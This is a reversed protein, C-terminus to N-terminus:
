IIVNEVANTAERNCKVMDLTPFFLNIRRNKLRRTIRRIDLTKMINKLQVFNEEFDQNYPNLVLMKMNDSLLLEVVEFGYASFNGYRFVDERHMMERLTKKNDGVEVRPPVINLFPKMWVAEIYEVHVLTVFSTSKSFKPATLSVLGKSRYSIWDNIKRKAQKDYNLYEIFDSAKDKVCKSVDSKENVFLRVNWIGKTKLEPLKRILNKPKEGYLLTELNAKTERKAVFLTALLIYRIAHPSVLTNYNPKPNPYALHYISAFRRNIKDDFTSTSVTKLSFVFVM